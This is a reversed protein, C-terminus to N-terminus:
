KPSAGASDKVPIWPPWNPDQEMRALFTRSTDHTSYYFCHTGISAQLHKRAGARDGEALLMMGIFYHALTQNRKSRGSAQILGEASLEGCLYDLSRLAFARNLKPLRDPNQRAARWANIAEAKRGAFLLTAPSELVGVGGAYRRALVEAYAKSVRAAGDPAEAQLYVWVTDQWYGTGPLRRNAFDLAQSVRGRRYLALAYSYDNFPDSETGESNRRWLDFEEDEKGAVVSCAARIWLFYPVARHEELARCDSEAEELAARRRVMQAADEYFGAAILHVFISTSHANPNDPAMAKAARIDEIAKGVFAADSTEMAYDARVGARLIRAIASERRLVARDMTELGRVPDSYSEALGKYLWDEPTVPGLEEIGEIARDHVEWRQGWVGSSALLGRASVNKPLEKVAQELYGIAQGFQGRHYALQGQFLAAWGPPAGLSVAEDMAHEAAELDGSLLLDTARGQKEALLQGQALRQDNVRRQETRIAQRAFFGAVLALVIACGLAAALGPRRKAWKVARGMPGVRRAGIAFRNVFRRLDEALQGATQYRRDPDKEMAKLCITELDVPVKRNHRRPPAPEKHIIQAIVEDRSQGPFPPELTLIEYLTAGLSYVDTRHDLPARGATIQEPSMYLPSGVFEGSLTMGPQELVRALGFDNISLRGDKSLLLNAPKIDRHIVGNEHAYDLADAVGAIMRALADFHEGPSRLSTSSREPMSAPPTSDASLPPSHFLDAVWEPPEMGPASAGGPTVGTSAIPGAGVSATAASTTVKSGCLKGRRLSQIVQHLSPGDILEMAYYHMGNENSTSYIPVINTHHLRGAAEAERQFRLEAKSSLGLSSSIVKLAVNRNLSLQRAEYVVGMGGRGLERLIEFDGLRKRANGVETM